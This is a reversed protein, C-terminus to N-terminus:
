CRGVTVVLCLSDQNTKTRRKMRGSFAMFILLFNLDLRLIRSKLIQLINKEAYIYSEIKSLGRSIIEIERYNTFAESLKM